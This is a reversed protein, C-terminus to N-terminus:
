AEGRSRRVSERVTSKIEETNGDAAEEEGASEEHAQDEESASEGDAAMYSVTLIVALLGLPALWAPLRIGLARDLSYRGPGNLM